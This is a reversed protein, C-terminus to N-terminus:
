MSEVFQINVGNPDKVFFFKIQPTPQSPGSTVKIGKEQVFALQKEMSEVEFGLSIGKIDGSSQYDKHWMLEIRTEGEGLFAVERDPANENKFRQTLKLGVIEQYFKLSEEMDSVSITCWNFKM